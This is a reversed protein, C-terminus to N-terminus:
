LSSNYRLTQQFGRNAELDLLLKKRDLGGGYGGLGGGTRIVRHCPIVIAIPNAGNAAGVARIAKPSGISEAMQAYTRTEGYPIELLADWVRRQFETGGADLPLDFRRLSGEFYAELQRFAEGAVPDNRNTESLEDVFELRRIKGDRIAVSVRVGPAVERAEWDM